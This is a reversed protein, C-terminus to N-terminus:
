ATGISKTQKQANQNQSGNKKPKESFNKSFNGHFFNTKFFTPNEAPQANTPKAPLAM